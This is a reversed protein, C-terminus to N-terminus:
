HLLLCLLLAITTTPFLVLSLFRDQCTAGVICFAGWNFLFFCDSGDRKNNIINITRISRTIFCDQANHWCYWNFSLFLISTWMIVLFITSPKFPERLPHPAPNMQDVGPLALFPLTAKSKMKKDVSMVMGKARM